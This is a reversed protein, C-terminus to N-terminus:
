LRIIVNRLEMNNNLTIIYNTDNHTCIKTQLNKNQKVSLNIHYTAKGKIPLSQENIKYSSWNTPTKVLLPKIETNKLQQPSLLTDWYFNWYNNIEFINKSNFNENSLNVINSNISNKNIQKTCSALILLFFIIIYKKKVLINVKTRLNNKEFTYILIQFEL